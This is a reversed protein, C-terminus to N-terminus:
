KTDHTSEKTLSELAKVYGRSARQHPNETKGITKLNEYDSWSGFQSLYADLPNLLAFDGLGTNYYESAIKDPADNIVDLIFAPYKIQARKAINKVDNEALIVVSSYKQGAIFLLEELELEKQKLLIEEQETSLPSQFHLAFLKFVPTNVFPSDLVTNTKMADSAYFDGTFVTLGMQAMTTLRLASDSSSSSISSLYLFATKSPEKYTTENDTLIVPEKYETTILATKEFFVSKTKFGHSFSGTYIEKTQVSQDVPVPQFFLCLGLTILVLFAELYSFFTFKFSYRDLFLSHKLRYLSAINTIFVLVTLCFIIIFLVSLGFTLILLVNVFFAVITVIAITDTSKTKKFIPRLTALLLFFLVVLQGILIDNDFSM